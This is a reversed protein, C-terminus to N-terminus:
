PGWDVLVPSDDRRATILADGSEVDIVDIVQRFSSRWRLVALWRGSPSWALGTIYPYGEAQLLGRDGGTVPDLLRIETSYAPEGRTYAFLDDSPSWRL